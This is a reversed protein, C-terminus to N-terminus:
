QLVVRLSSSFQRCLLLRASASVPPPCLSHPIVTLATVTTLGTAVTSRVPGQPCCQVVPVQASLLKQRAIKEQRAFAEVAVTVEREMVQAVKMNTCTPYRPLCIAHSLSAPLYRSIFLCAPLTLYLPLCERVCVRVTVNSDSNDTQTGMTVMRSKLAPMVVRSEGRMALQDESQALCDAAHALEAEANALSAELQQLANIM